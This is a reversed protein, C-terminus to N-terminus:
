GQNANFGSTGDDKGAPCEISKLTEILSNKAQTATRRREVLGSLQNFCLIESKALKGYVVLTMTGPRFDTLAHFIHPDLSYVSGPETSPGAYREVRGKWPEGDKYQEQPELPRVFDQDYGGAITLSVIPRTHDHINESALRSEGLFPMFQNLALDWVPTRFLKWSHLEATRTVAPNPYELTGLYEAIRENVGGDSWCARLLGETEVLAAPDDWDLADLARILRRIEM